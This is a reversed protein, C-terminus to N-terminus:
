LGAKAQLATERLLQEVADRSTGRVELHTAIDSDRLAAPSPHDGTHWEQRYYFSDIWVPPEEYDPGIGALVRWDSGSFFEQYRYTEMPVASPVVLTFGDSVMLLQKEGVQKRHTTWTGLWVPGDYEVHPAGVDMEEVEYRGAHTANYAAVFAEAEPRDDYVRKVVYGDAYDDIVLYVSM